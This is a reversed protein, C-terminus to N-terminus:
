GAVIVLAAAALQNGRPVQGLVEAARPALLGLRVDGQVAADLGEVLM